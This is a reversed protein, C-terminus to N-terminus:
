IDKCFRDVPKYKQEKSFISIKDRLNAVREPVKEQSLWRINSHFLLGNHGASMEDCFVRFLRTHLPRSKNYNVM